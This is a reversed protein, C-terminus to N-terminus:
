SPHRAAKGTSSTHLSKEKKGTKRGELLPTLPGARHGAAEQFRATNPHSGPGAGQGGGAKHIRPALFCRNDLQLELFHGCSPLVKGQGGRTGQAFRHRLAPPSGSSHRGCPHAQALLGPRADGWKKGTLGQGGSEGWAPGCCGPQPLSCHPVEAGPHPLGGSDELGQCAARSEPALCLSGGPSDPPASGWGLIPKAASDPLDSPCFSAHNEEGKTSHSASPRSSDLTVPLTTGQDAHLPPNLYPAQM